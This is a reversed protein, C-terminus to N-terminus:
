TLPIGEPSELQLDNTGCDHGLESLRIMNPASQADLVTPVVEVGRDYNEEEYRSGVVLRQVVVEMVQKQTKM